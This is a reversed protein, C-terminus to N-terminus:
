PIFRQGMRRRQEWEDMMPPQEGWQPPQPMQPPPMQQPQQWPGFQQGPMARMALRALPSNPQQGGQMGFPLLHNRPNAMFKPNLHNAPNLMGGSSGLPNFISKKGGLLGGALKNFFGM